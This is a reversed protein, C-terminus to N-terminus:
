SNFIPFNNDLWDKTEKLSWGQENRVLKIAEIRKGAKVFAVVEITTNRSLGVGLSWPVRRSDDTWRISIPFDLPGDWDNPGSNIIADSPISFGQTKIYEVFDQRTISISINKKM